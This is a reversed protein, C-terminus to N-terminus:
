PSGIGRRIVDIANSKTPVRVAPATSPARPTTNSSPGSIRGINLM